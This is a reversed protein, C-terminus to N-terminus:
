VSLVHPRILHNQKMEVLFSWSTAETNKKTNRYLINIVM